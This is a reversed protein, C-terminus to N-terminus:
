RTTSRIARPLPADLSLLKGDGFKRYKPSGIERAYMRARDLFQDRDIKGATFDALVDNVVDFKDDELLWSPVMEMIAFYDKAAQESRAGGGGPRKGHIIVSVNSDGRGLVERIRAREAESLPSPVRRDTARRCAACYRRHGGAPGQIKVNDGTM